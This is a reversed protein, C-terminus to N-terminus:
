SHRAGSRRSLLWSVTRWGLLLPSSAPLLRRALDMGSSALLAWRNKQVSHLRVVITARQLRAAQELLQQRQQLLKLENM